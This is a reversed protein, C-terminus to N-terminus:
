RADPGRPARPSPAIADTSSRMAAPWQAADNKAGQLHYALFDRRMKELEPGGFGAGHGGGKVTNFRVPVGAKKLAEFLLESQHHPVTADADGHNILFPADGATVFAIPNARAVKEKNEPLLVSGGILLSEPSGAVALASRQGALRHADFQSFDTPGYDDVVCQVASSFELHRGVDFTKVDGTVGLLAVLHGGASSGWVGFRAPDLRYDRAHARLWRIAAKCDEIQAPYVAHQSLRYNLSAVAYGQEAFGQRLPPCGGKDGGMWAGGHIWVIVPLAKEAKDPVFLDLVQRAHGNEVYPLDRYATVGEPMRTTAPARGAPQAAAAALAAALASVFMWLLKKM